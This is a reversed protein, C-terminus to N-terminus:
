LGNEDPRVLLGSFKAINNAQSTTPTIAEKFNKEQSGLVYYKGWCVLHGVLRV